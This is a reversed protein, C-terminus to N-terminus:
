RRMGREEGLKRVFNTEELLEEIAGGRGLSNSKRGYKGRYAEGRRGMSDVTVLDNSLNKTVQRVESLSINAGDKV